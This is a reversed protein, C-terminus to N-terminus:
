KSYMGRKEMDSDSPEFFKIEGTDEDLKMVVIRHTNTEHLQPYKSLLRILGLGVRKM